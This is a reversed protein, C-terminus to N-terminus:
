VGGGLSIGRGVFIFERIKNYIRIIINKNYKKSIIDKITKVNEMSTM